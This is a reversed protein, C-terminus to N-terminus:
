GASWPVGLSPTRRQEEVYHSYAARLSAAFPGPKGDGIAHGDIQIVSTAFNSASSVFAEKAALAQAVSFAHEEIAIGQAACLAQLSSRTVGKLISHDAQRTVLKNENTLIWANASSAETVFGQEDVMWAEQAGQEAASQKALVQGLLGTTKIDRRKWRLDPVTVVAIGKAAGTQPLIKKARLTIVLTPRVDRPFAFDRPAVGRSIQLYLLGDPTANRRVVEHLVLSLARRSLPMPIRLEGLSRELRDLHGREDLLHAGAVVIVEYVSDAFQFGRDEVHVSAARHPVYQGNVYAIRPM